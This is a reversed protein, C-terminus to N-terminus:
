VIEGIRPDRLLDILKPRHGNVGSGIESVSKVISLGHATAQEVLRACQRELDKKQDRSSVRAYVAAGRKEALPVPEVLITGTPLQKSPVPLIGARFWRYATKYDLGQQRAWEALKM